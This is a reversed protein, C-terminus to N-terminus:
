RSQYETERAKLEEKLQALAEADSDAGKEAEALAAFARDFLRYDQYLFVMEIPTASNARATELDKLEDKTYRYVWYDTKKNSDELPALLQIDYPVGAELDFQAVLRDGDVGVVSTKQWPDKSGSRRYFADVPQGQPLAFSSGDARILGVSLAPRAQDTRVNVYGARASVGGMRSFDIRERPALVTERGRALTSKVRDTSGNVIAVSESNVTVTVDGDLNVKRGGLAFSLSLQSGAPVRLQAGSPITQLLKLKTWQRSPPEDKSDNKILPTGKLGIVVASVGKSEAALTALALAAILVVLLKYKM